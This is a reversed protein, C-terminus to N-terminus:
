EITFTTFRRYYAAKRPTHPSTTLMEISDQTSEEKVKLARGAMSKFEKRLNKMYDNTLQVSEDSVTAVQGSLDRDSALHCVTTYTTTLKDGQLTTKISMTPSSATSYRGWTTDCIQGIARIEDISLM